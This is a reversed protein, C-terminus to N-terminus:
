RCVPIDARGLSLEALLQALVKAVAPELEPSLGAGATFDKGEIGYLILCPPLQDLARALEIAEAASFAHTSERFLQRPLQGARADLRHITGPPASSHVADALFVTSRGKWAELLAAGEGSQEIISLGPVAQERLRQALVLGVGDDHRYENGVGIVLIDEAKSTM